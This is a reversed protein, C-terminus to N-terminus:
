SANKVFQAIADMMKQAPLGKAEKEAIWNNKVVSAKDLMKATETATLDYVEMGVDKMLQPAKQDDPARDALYAQNYEIIVQDIADQLDKPISNWSNKSMVLFLCSYALPPSWINNKVVEYLKAQLVYEWGTCVGDLVGRELSMYLEPGPISVGAGGLAEIFKLTSANSGRIRLGKFGDVTTVKPKVFINLSSGPLIGLVKFDSLGKLLGQNFLDWTIKSRANRSPIGLGPLEIGTEMEFQASYTGASLNAIEVIGGKMMNIFDTQKGLSESHFATIKVRGGTKDSVMKAFLDDLRGNTNEPTYIDTLKLEIPKIVATSTTTQTQTTTATTTTTSTQIATTTVPPPTSCAGFLGLTLAIILIICISFLVRRSM